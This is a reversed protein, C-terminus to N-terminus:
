HHNITTLSPSHHNIIQNTTELQGVGRFFIISHTRWNLHNFNNGIHHSFYILWTGFWWGSWSITKAAVLNMPQYVMIFGYELTNHSLDQWIMDLGISSEKLQSWLFTDSGPSSQHAEEGCCQGFFGSEAWTGQFFNPWQARSCFPGM